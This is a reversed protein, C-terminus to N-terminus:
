RPTPQIRLIHFSDAFDSVKWTCAHHRLASPGADTLLGADWSAFFRFLRDYMRHATATSSCKVRWRPTPWGKLIHYSLIFDSTNQACTRHRLASPGGDQLLGADWSAFATCGMQHMKHAPTTGSLVQSKMQSYALM